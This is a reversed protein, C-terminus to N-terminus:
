VLQISLAQQALVQGAANAGNSNPTNATNPSCAAIFGITTLLLAAKFVRVFM